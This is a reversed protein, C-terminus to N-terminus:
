EVVLSPQAESIYINLIKSTEDTTGVLTPRIEGRSRYDDTGSSILKYGEKLINKSANDYYNITNKNIEYEKKRENLFYNYAFRISGFRKNLLVIQEENPKLKYKYSKLM